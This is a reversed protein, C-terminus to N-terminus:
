IHGRPEAVFGFSLDGQGHDADGGVVRESRSRESIIHTTYSFARPNERTITTRQCCRGCTFSLVMGNRSEM